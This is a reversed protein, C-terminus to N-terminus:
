VENKVDLCALFARAEPTAAHLFDAPTTLTDLRGNHLLGIRSGLILAERVDHTVFLATKSFQRRLVLFQRQLELRTVPDLAGFPEDFLLLPPDAALARAVGVRQRQGGSLERPYRGAYQEPPLGVQALLASARERVASREWGELRPVLGVNDAITFHPFLGVDQIVYGIHRRLRISDWDITPIGDVLVQGSTPRLLDNVMKLATTKGSGSRGLLVLTEGAHLDFSLGHLLTRNGIRYSVNQFSVIANVRASAARECRPM